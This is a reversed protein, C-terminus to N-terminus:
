RIEVDTYFHHLIQDYTFGQKGMEIASAQSLGVGHGHGKGRITLTDTNRSFTVKSSQLSTDGTSVTETKATTMNGYGDLIKMGNLGTESVGGASLVSVSRNLLSMGGSTLAYFISNQEATEQRRSTTSLVGGSTELVFNRSKLSTGSFASRIKDKKVTKSGSTGTITVSAAYGSENYQDVSVSTVTGVGSSSFMSTLQSRTFTHSWNLEPAYDDKVARLYGLPQVWVDECNETHGGSNAFYFPAVVSGNYYIKKGATADVAANVSPYEGATGIYSQCDSNTCLDFGQSKHNGRYAEGYSRAMVAQTKLAEANSSQSIERHVNGKVYDEMEVYNLVNMQGSSNIYPVIGGRYSTGEFSVPANSSFFAASVICETGDGNLTALQTGASNKVYVKGGSLTMTVSTQGSLARSASATVSNNGIKALALGQASTIKASKTSSAYRLGIKLYEPSGSAAFSSLMTGAMVLIGTLIAILVRRCTIKVKSNTM